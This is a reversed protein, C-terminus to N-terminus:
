PRTNQRRSSDPPVLVQSGGAAIREMQAATLHSSSLVRCGRVAGAKVISVL